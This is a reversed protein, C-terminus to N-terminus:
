TVNTNVTDNTGVQAKRYFFSGRVVATLFHGVARYGYLAPLATTRFSATESFVGCINRGGSDM